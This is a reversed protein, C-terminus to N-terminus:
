TAPPLGDITFNALLMRTEAGARLAVARYGDFKVKTFGV